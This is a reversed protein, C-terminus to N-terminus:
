PRALGEEIRLQLPANPPLSTPDTSRRDLRLTESLAGDDALALAAAPLKGDAPKMFLDRAFATLGIMAVVGLGARLRRWRRARRVDTRSPGTLVIRDDLLPVYDRHPSRAM